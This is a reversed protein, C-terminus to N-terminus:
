RPHNSAVRAALDPFRDMSGMAAYRDVILNRGEVYGHRVLGNLFEAEIPNITTGDWGPLAIGIQRQRVSQQAHASCALASTAALAIFNSQATRDKDLRATV